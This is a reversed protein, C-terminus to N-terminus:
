TQQTFPCVADASLPLCVSVHFSNHGHGFYVWGQCTVFSYLVVCSKDITPTAVVHGKWLGTYPLMLFCLIRTELM